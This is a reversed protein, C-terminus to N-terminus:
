SLEQTVLFSEPLHHFLQLAELTELQGRGGLFLFVRQGHRKEVNRPAFISPPFVIM